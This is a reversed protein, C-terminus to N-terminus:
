SRLHCWILSCCRSWAWTQNALTLFSVTDFAGRSTSPLYHQPQQFDHAFDISLSCRGSALRLFVVSAGLFAWLGVRCLNLAVWVSGSKMPLRRDVVPSLGTAQLMSGVRASGVYVSEVCASGVRASGVRASGVGVSWRTSSSGDTRPLHSGLRASWWNATSRDASVAACPREESSGRQMRDTPCETRCKM